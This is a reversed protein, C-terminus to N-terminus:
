RLETCITWICHGEVFEHVVANLLNVDVWFAGFPRDADAYDFGASELFESYQNADM